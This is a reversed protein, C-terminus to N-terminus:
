KSHSCTNRSIQPIRLRKPWPLTPLERTRRRLPGYRAIPLNGGRAARNLNALVATSTQAGTPLRRQRRGDPERCGSGAPDFRSSRLQEYFAWTSRPTYCCATTLPQAPTGSRRAPPGEIHVKKRTPPSSATFVPDITTQCDEYLVCDDSLAWLEGSISIVSSLRKM